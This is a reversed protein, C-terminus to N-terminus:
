CTASCLFIVNSLVQQEWLLLITDGISFIRKVWLVEYAIPQPPGEQVGGVDERMRAEGGNSATIGVVGEHVAVAHHGAPVVRTRGVEVCCTCVHGMCACAYAPMCVNLLISHKGHLIFVFGFSLFKFM